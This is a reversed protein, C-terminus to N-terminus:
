TNTEEPPILAPDPIEAAPADIEARDPCEADLTYSTMSLSGFTYGDVLVKTTHGGAAAVGALYVLPLFHDLTPVAQRFEERAHLRCLRRINPHCTYNRACARTMHAGNSGLIRVDM